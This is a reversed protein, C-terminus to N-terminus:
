GNGGGERGIKVSTLNVIDFRDITRELEALSLGIIADAGEPLDGSEYLHALAAKVTVLSSTLCAHELADILYVTPAISLLGAGARILTHAADEIAQDSPNRELTAEAAGSLLLATEIRDSFPRIEGQNSTSMTLSRHKTISDAMDSRVAIPPSSVIPHSVPCLDPWRSRQGSGTAMSYRGSLLFRRPIASKAGTGDPNRRGARYAYRSLNISGSERVSSCDRNRRNQRSNHPIKKHAADLASYVTAANM